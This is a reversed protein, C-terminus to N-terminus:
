EIREKVEETKYGGFTDMSLIEQQDGGLDKWTKEVVNDWRIRARGKTTEEWAARDVIVIAPLRKKPMDRIKYQWELKRVDRITKLPHM